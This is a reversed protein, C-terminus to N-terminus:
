LIKYFRNFSYKPNLLSYTNRKDLRKDMTLIINISQNTLARFRTNMSDLYRSEIWEKTLSNPVTLYVRDDVFTNYKVMSFWIDFSTDGIDQRLSDLVQNWVNSYENPLSM